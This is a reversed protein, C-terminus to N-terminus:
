SVYILLNWASIRFSPSKGGSDEVLTYSEREADEHAQVQYDALGALFHPAFTRLLDGHMRSMKVEWYKANDDYKSISNPPKSQEMISVAM